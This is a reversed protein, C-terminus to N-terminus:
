TKIPVIAIATFYRTRLMLICFGLLNKMPNGHGGNKLLGISLLPPLDIYHNIIIVDAMPIPKSM